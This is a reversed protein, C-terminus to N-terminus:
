AAKDKRDPSVKKAEARLQAQEASNVLDVEEAGVVRPPSEKGYHALNRLEPKEILSLREDLEQLREKLWDMEPAEPDTALIQKKIMEIDELVQELEDQPLKELKSLRTDLYQLTEKLLATEPAEPDAALIQNQTMEIEEQIREIKTKPKEAQPLQEHTMVPM